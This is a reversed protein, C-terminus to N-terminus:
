GITDDDDTTPIWRVYISDEDNNECDLIEVLNLLELKILIFTIDRTKISEYGINDIINELPIYSDEQLLIDILEEVLYGKKICLKDIKLQQYKSLTKEKSEEVIEVDEVIEESM